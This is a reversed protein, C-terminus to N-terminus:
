VVSMERILAIKTRGAKGMRVSKRKTATFMAKMGLCSWYDVKDVGTDLSIDYYRIFMM